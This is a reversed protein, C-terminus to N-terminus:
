WTWGPLSELKETRSPSIVNLRYNKKQVTYWLGIKISKYITKQSLSSFSNLSLYEKLLEFRSDWVFDLPSWSWEPINELLKIRELTMQKKNYLTIQTSVWAGLSVGDDIYKRSPQCNAYKEQYKKM